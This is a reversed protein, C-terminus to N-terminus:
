TRSAGASPCSGIREWATNWIIARSDARTATSEGKWNTGMKPEVPAGGASAAGLLPSAALWRDVGGFTRDGRGRLCVSRAHLQQDDSVPRRSIPLLPLPLALVVPESRQGGLSLLFHPLRRPSQHEQHRREIEDRGTRPGARGLRRLDYILFVAHVELLHFLEGGVTPRFLELGPEFPLASALDHCQHSVLRM